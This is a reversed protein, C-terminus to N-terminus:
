ALPLMLSCSMQCISAVKYSLLSRPTTRAVISSQDASLIPRADKLWDLVLHTQPREGPFLPFLAAGPKSAADAMTAPSPGLAKPDIRFGGARLAPCWYSGAVVYIQLVAASVQARRRFLGM